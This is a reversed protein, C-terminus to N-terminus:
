VDKINGMRTGAKRVDDNAGTHTMRGMAKLNDGMRMREDDITSTHTEKSGHYM